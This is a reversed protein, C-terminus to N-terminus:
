TVVVGKAKEMRDRATQPGPNRLSLEADEALELFKHYKEHAQLVEEDYFKLFNKFESNYEWRLSKYNRTTKKIDRELERITNNVANLEDAFKKQAKKTKQYKKDNSTLLDRLWKFTRKDPKRGELLLEKAKKLRTLADNLNKLKEMEIELGAYLKTVSADWDDYEKNKELTADHAKKALRARTNAEKKPGEFLALFQDKVNRYDLSMSPQNTETVVFLFFGFIWSNWERSSRSRTSSAFNRSTM